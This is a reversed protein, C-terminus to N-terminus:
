PQVARRFPGLPIHKIYQDKMFSKLVSLWERREYLDSIDYNDSHSNSQGIAVIGM